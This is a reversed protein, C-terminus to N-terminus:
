FFGRAWFGSGSSAGLAWATATLLGVVAALPLMVEGFTKAVPWYYDLVLPHPWVALRLYHLIVKSQTMAYQLATVDHGFGVSETRVGQAVLAALLLWTAALGAYLGARKRLAEGFAGSVFTRDYLLVIVPASVMVEKTGMGLACSIIAMAYWNKARASQFGRIACYLTLLYFLGMLSEARHIIYTVSATQLPHVVWILAVALAIRPARKGFREGLPGRELTRWVIGFLALAAAIHVALNFAHYSWVELGSIAYNLALSLSLVPRGAATTQPPSWVTKHLPWLQRIAPNDRIAAHDDFILPVSFSNLYVLGGAGIILL